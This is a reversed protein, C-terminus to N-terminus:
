QYLVSLCTYLFFLRSIGDNWKSTSTWYEARHEKLYFLSLALFVFLL